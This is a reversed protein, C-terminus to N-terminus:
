MRGEAVITYTINAEDDNIVSKIDYIVGRYHIELSTKEDEFLDHLFKSYRVVFRSTNITSSDAKQVEEGKLTKIMAWLKKVEEFTEIEQLLEDVTITRKFLSIRRNFQAPNM